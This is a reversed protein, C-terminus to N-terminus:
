FSLESVADQVIKIQELDTPFILIKGTKKIM